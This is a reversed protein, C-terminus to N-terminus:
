FFSKKMITSPLREVSPFKGGLTKTQPLFSIESVSKIMPGLCSGPIVFIIKKL